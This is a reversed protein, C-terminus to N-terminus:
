QFAAKVFRASSIRTLSWACGSTGRTTIRRSIHKEDYQKGLQTVGRAVMWKFVNPRKRALNYFFTASLVNKWRALM